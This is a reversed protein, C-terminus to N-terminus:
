VQATQPWGYRLPAPPGGGGVWPDIGIGNARPVRHGIGTM